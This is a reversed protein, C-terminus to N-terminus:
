AHHAIPKRARFFRWRSSPSLTAIRTRDEGPMVIRVRRHRAIAAGLDEFWRGDVDVAAALWALHDRRRMWEGLTGVVLLTSGGQAAAEEISAPLPRAEAGSLRAIGLSFPDAAYIADYRKPLSEPRAGEGWFWLSNAAPKATGRRANVDHASLVMQSETIASPWNIRGHGRPLLGFVNRGLAREIPVTAPSEGPPVRAYWRQTAVAQLEIGDPAFHGRLAAALAAMEDTTLELVSPDNLVLADGDIALHVPDARIWEGPTDIGEGALAIAAFPIPKAIGHEGAIWGHSGEAGAWDLDARALWKELAPLRAGRIAPPAGAPALLDPIVIDLPM